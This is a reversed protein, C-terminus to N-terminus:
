SVGSLVDMSHHSYVGHASQSGLGVTVEFMVVVAVCVVCTHKGEDRGIFLLCCSCEVFLWFALADRLTGGYLYRVVIVIARGRRIDFAMTM